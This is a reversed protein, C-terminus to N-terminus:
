KRRFAKLLKMHQKIDKVSKKEALYDLAPNDLVDTSLIDFELELARVQKGWINDLCIQPDQNAYIYEGKDSIVANHMFERVVTKSGDFMEFTLTVNDLMCSTNLPDIRFKEIDVANKIPMWVKGHPRSVPIRVSQEESYGSGTDTFIQVYLNEQALMQQVDYVKKRYGELVQHTGNKGYVYADFNANMEEYVAVQEPAILFLGYMDQLTVVDRMVSAYKIYFSSIARYIVYNVPVAFPFVWEYDLIQYHDVAQQGIEGSILDSDGVHIINDFTLDIDLNCASEMGQIDADGFVEQFAISLSHSQENDAEKTPEQPIEANKVIGVSNTLIEHYHTLYGMFADRDKDSLATLMEKCLSKGDLFDFRITDEGEMLAPCLIEEGEHSRYYEYMGQIHHKAEETLARKAVYREGNEEAIYTEIQFQARRDKTFKSYIKKM